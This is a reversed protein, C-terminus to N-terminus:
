MELCTGEAPYELNGFYDCILTEPTAEQEHIAMKKLAVGHKV